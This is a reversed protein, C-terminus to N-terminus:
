RARWTWFWRRTLCLLCRHSALERGILYHLQPTLTARVQGSCIRHVSAADIAQIRGSAEAQAPEMPVPSGGAFAVDRLNVGRWSGVVRGLEVGSSSVCRPTSNASGQRQQARGHRVEKCLDQSRQAGYVHLKRVVAPLRHADLPLAAFHLRQGQKGGGVSHASLHTCQALGPPGWAGAPTCM